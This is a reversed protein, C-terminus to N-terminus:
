RHGLKSCTDFQQGVYESYYVAVGMKKRVVNKVKQFLVTTQQHLFRFPRPLLHRWFRCDTGFGIWVFFRKFGSTCTLGKVQQSYFVILFAVGVQWSSLKLTFSAESLGSIQDPAWQNRLTCNPLCSSVRNWFSQCAFICFTWFLMSCGWLRFGLSIKQNKTRASRVLFESKPDWEILNSPIKFDRLEGEKRRCLISYHFPNTDDVDILAIPNSFYTSM